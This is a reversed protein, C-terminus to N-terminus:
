YSYHDLKKTVSSGLDTWDIGYRMHHRITMIRTHVSRAIGYMLMNQFPM